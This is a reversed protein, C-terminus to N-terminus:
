SNNVVGKDIIIWKSNDEGIPKIIAIDKGGEVSKLIRDNEDYFISSGNEIFYNETRENVGEVRVAIQNFDLTDMMERTTYTKFEM